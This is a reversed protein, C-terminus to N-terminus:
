GREGESVLVCERRVCMGESGLVCESRVCMGEGRMRDCTIYREGGLSAGIGMGVGCGMGIGIGMGVGCGMGIGIGVGVGCISPRHTCSYGKDTATSLSHNTHQLASGTDHQHIQIM